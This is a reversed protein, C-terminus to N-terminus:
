VLCSEEKGDPKCLGCMCICKLYINQCHYMFVDMNYYKLYLHHCFPAPGGHSTLGPKFSTTTSELINPIEAPLIFLYRDKLHSTESPTKVIITTYM